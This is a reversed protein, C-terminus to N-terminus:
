IGIDEDLKLVEIIQGILHLQYLVCRIENLRYVSRFLGGPEFLNKRCPIMLLLKGGTFSAQLRRVRFAWFADQELKAPDNGWNQMLNALAMLREMFATTLLFRAEVQDTSYVEFLEEFRPDELAVRDLSSARASLWNLVAGRDRKVLTQGYFPKKVELLVAAGNFVPTKGSRTRMSLRLESIEIRVGELVGSIHDEGMYLNHQPLIGFPALQLKSICDGPRCALNFFSVVNPLLRGKMHTIYRHHVLVPWSVAVAIVAGGLKGQFESDDPRGLLSIFYLGSAGGLLALVCVLVFHKLRAIREREVEALIPAVHSAFHDAFGKEYEAQEIFAVAPSTMM